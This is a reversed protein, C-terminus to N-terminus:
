IDGVVVAAPDADAPAVVPILPLDYKRAFELDRQDHGPCGFIAGAGYEMLVFNAVYVPLRRGPILPHFVDLQTRYGTKEATEIAAESTGIRDCEAIFAALRPDTSALEEALPHHPSLACFSAGFLTDPRTTFVELRDERGVLRFWVRAGESRGIWNEQMLRVKAPWRELTALDALLDESFHTIRLFWQALLRREVPAGSRWGRGDIVQENALVTQDVPDWNVWSERRYALGAKLFDLFMKQEHRYYEPHCTAIERSWDLSLGMSKLQARMADINAYTWKAPHVGSAIAANEAPLGFADWGMPHLVAFGRARKYRAVVDGLTYNRVHGMHIRGSPYPFMELVYYKPPASDTPSRFCGREEWLAQWKAETEKFAYRTM